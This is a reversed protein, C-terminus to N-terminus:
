CDIPEPLNCEKPALNHYEKLAKLTIDIAQRTGLRNFQSLSEIATGAAILSEEGGQGIERTMFQGYFIAMWLERKVEVDAEGNEFATKAANFAKLSAEWHKAIEPNM